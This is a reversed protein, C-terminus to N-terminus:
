FSAKLDLVQDAMYEVQAPTIDQHTPLELVHARLFRTDESADAEPYAYNWFEVAGVGRERLARAAAGKDPVLLPFFLEFFLEASRGAVSAVTCPELELRTLDGLVNTNQVLLGDHPVPLTKYLCFFDSPALDPSGPVYM